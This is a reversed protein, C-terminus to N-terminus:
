GSPIATNVFGTADQPSFHKAEELMSPSLLHLACLQHALTEHVSTTLAHVQLYIYM